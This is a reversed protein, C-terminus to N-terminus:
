NEGNKSFLSDSFDVVKYGACGMQYNSNSVVKEFTNHLAVKTKSM